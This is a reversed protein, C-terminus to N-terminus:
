DCRHLEGREELHQKDASKSQSAQELAAISDESAQSAAASLLHFSDLFGNTLGEGSSSARANTSDRAGSCGGGGTRDSNLDFDLGLSGDLDGAASSSNGDLWGGSCDGGRVCCVLRFGKSRDGRLEGLLSRLELGEVVLEGGSACGM